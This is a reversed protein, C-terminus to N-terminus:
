CCVRRSRCADSSAFVAIDQYSRRAALRRGGCRRGIVEGNGREMAQGCRWASINSGSFVVDPTFNKSAAQIISVFAATVLVIAALFAGPRNM